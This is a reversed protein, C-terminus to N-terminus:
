RMVIIDSKVKYNRGSDVITIENVGNQKVDAMYEAINARMVEYNSKMVQNDYPQGADCVVYLRNILQKRSQQSQHLYYWRIMDDKGKRTSLDYPRSASLKAPYVTLKVDFPVNNIYIDVDHNYRNSDHVAGYECFIYECQISTMYNYWRHLAYEKNVGTIEVQKLCESLSKMQYIFKTQEDDADNQMNWDAPIINMVEKLDRELQKNM